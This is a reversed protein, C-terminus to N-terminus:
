AERPYKETGARFVTEVFDTLIAVARASTAESVVLRGDEIKFDPSRRVFTEVAARKPFDELLGSSHVLCNRVEILGTLAQWQENSLGPDFACVKTCFTRFREANSGSLDGFTLPTGTIRRLIEVITRLERELFVVCTILFSEHLVQPFVEEYLYARDTAIAQLADPLDSDPEAAKKLFAHIATSYERLLALQIDADVAHGFFEYFSSDNM